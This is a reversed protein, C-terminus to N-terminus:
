GWTTFGVNKKGGTGYLCRGKPLISKQLIQRIDIWTLVRWAKEQGHNFSDPCNQEKNAKCTGSYAGIDTQRNSSVCTPSVGEPDMPEGIIRTNM